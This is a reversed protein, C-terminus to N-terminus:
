AVIRHKLRGKWGGLNEPITTTSGSTAQSTGETSSGCSEPNPASGGICLEEDNFVISVAFPPTSGEFTFSYKLHFTDGANIPGDWSKSALTWVCGDGSVDASPTTLSSLPGDVSLVVIWSTSTTGPSLYISATFLNGQQSDITMSGSCDPNSPDPGPGGGGTNCMSDGNFKISTIAPKQGGYKVIFRLELSEGANIDGDWEVSTLIWDKGSGSVDALPSTIIDVTNDFSIELSWASIDEEPSLNILGQWQGPKDDEVIYNESCDHIPNNCSSGGMCLTDENFQVSLVSPKSGTYDVIFKLTVHDGVAIDGDWDKNSLTWSTGSGNVNSMISEIREVPSSFELAVTWGSVPNTSSLVLEGNWNGNSESTITLVESCAGTDFFISTVDPRAGSYDVIFRLNIVSGAEIDSDWEKSALTWSNGSGTVDAMASEIWDVAETFSIVVTWGSMDDEYPGLQLVGQWHGQGESEIDLIDTCEGDQVRAQACSLFGLVLAVHISKM